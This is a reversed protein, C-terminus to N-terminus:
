RGTYILPWYVLSLSVAIVVSFSSLIWAAKLKVTMLQLEKEFKHFNRFCQTVIIASFGSSIGNLIVNWNTLFIPYLVLNKDQKATIM